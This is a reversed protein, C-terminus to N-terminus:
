HGRDDRKIWAYMVALLEKTADFREVSVDPFAGGGVNSLLHRNATDDCRVIM